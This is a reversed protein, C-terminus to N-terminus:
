NSVGKKKNRGSRKTQSQERKAKAKDERVRKREDRQLAKMEKQRQREWLFQLHHSSTLGTENCNFIRSPDELIGNTKLTEELMDFYCNLVDPNTAIARGYSLLVAIKM